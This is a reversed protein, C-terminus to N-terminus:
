PLPPMQKYLRLRRRVRRRQHEIRPLRNHINAAGVEGMGTGGHSRGESLGKESNITLQQKEHKNSQM